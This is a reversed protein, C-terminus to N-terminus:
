KYSYVQPMMSVNNNAHQQQRGVGGQKNTPTRKQQKM